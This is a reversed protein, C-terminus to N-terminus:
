YQPCVPHNRSLCGVLILNTGHPKFRHGQGPKAQVSDVLHPPVRSHIESSLDGYLDLKKM